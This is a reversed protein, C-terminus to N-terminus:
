PRRTGAASIRTSPTLLFFMFSMDTVASTDWGGIDQNFASAGDFMSSMSRVSSTEWAGIDQDFDSYHFM